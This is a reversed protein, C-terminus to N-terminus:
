KKKEDFPIIGSDKSLSLPTELGKESKEKLESFIYKIRRLEWHSPIEGIWQVGSDKYVKYREM